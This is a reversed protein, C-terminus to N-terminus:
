TMQIQTKGLCKRSCLTLLCIWPLLMENWPFINQFIHQLQCHGSFAAVWWKPSCIDYIPTAKWPGYAAPAQPDPFMASEGMPGQSPPGATGHAKGEESRWPKLSQHGPKGQPLLLAPKKFDGYLAKVSPVRILLLFDCHFKSESTRKFVISIIVPFNVNMKWSSIQILCTNQAKSHLLSNHPLFIIICNNNLNTYLHSWDCKM